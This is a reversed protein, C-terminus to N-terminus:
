GRNTKNGQSHVKDKRVPDPFATETGSIRNKEWFADAASATGGRPVIETPDFLKQPLAKSHV